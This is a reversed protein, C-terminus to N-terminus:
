RRGGAGFRHPHITEQLLGGRTERPLRRVSRNTGDAQALPRHSLEGQMIGRSGFRYSLRHNAPAPTGHSPTM